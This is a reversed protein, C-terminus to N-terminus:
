SLQQIPMSQQRKRTDATERWHEIPKAEKPQAPMLGHCAQCNFLKSLPLGFAKLDKADKGLQHSLDSLFEDCDMPTYRFDKGRRHTIKHVDGDAPLHTLNPDLHKYNDREMVNFDDNYTVYHRTARTTKDVQVLSILGNPYSAILVGDDAYTPDFQAGFYRFAASSLREYDRWTNEPSSPDADDHIMDAEDLNLLRLHRKVDPDLKKRFRKRNRETDHWYEKIYDKEFYPLIAEAKQEDVQKLLSEQIKGVVTETSKGVTAWFFGTYLLGALAAVPTGTVLASLAGVAVSVGIARKWDRDIKHDTIYLASSLLRNKLRHFRSDQSTEAMTSRGKFLSQSEINWFRRVYYLAEDLSEFDRIDKGASLLSGKYGKEPEQNIQVFRAADDWDKRLNNYVRIQWKGETTESIGFAVQSNALKITRLPRMNPDGSPVLIEEAHLNMDKQFTRELFRMDHTMDDRFIPGLVDKRASIGYVDDANDGLVIQGDENEIGIIQDREYSHLLVRTGDRMDEALRYYGRPTRVLGDIPHPKGSAADRSEIYKPSYDLGAAYIMGWSRDRLQTGSLPQAEKKNDNSAKSKTKTVDTM